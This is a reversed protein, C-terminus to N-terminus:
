VYIIKRCVVITEEGEIETINRPRGVLVDLVVRRKELLVAVFQLAARV